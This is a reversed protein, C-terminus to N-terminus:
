IFSKRRNMLIMIAAAVYIASYTGSLMGVILAQAFDRLSGSSNLFLMVVVSMTCAVMIMTRTFVSNISATLLERFTQFKKSKINERIRDFLVVSENISYGLITLIASITLISFETRFLSQAGLVVIIDHAIAVVAGVAFQAKFRFAIYIGIALVAMLTVWIAQRKNDGSVSGSVMRTQEFVPKKAALDTSIMDKIKKGADVKQAEEAQTIAHRLYFRNPKTFVPQIEVRTNNKLFYSELDTVTTTEAFTVTLELGGVFDTGWNFGRTFILALSGVTLAISFVVFFGLPKYFDINLKM